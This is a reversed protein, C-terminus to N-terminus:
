REVSAPRDDKVELDELHQGEALASELWGPRKGKGSWTQAPNFPNRYKPGSGEILGGRRRVLARAKERREELELKVQKALLELQRDSFLSFDFQKM